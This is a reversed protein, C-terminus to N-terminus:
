NQTNNIISDWAEVPVKHIREMLRDRDDAFLLMIELRNRRHIMQNLVGAHKNTAMFYEKSLIDNLKELGQMTWLSVDGHIEIMEHLHNVFAHM